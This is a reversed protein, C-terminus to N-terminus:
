AGWHTGKERVVHHRRGPAGTRVLPSATSCSEEGLSLSKMASAAVSLLRGSRVSPLLLPVDGFVSLRCPASRSASPFRGASRVCEERQQVQVRRAVSM